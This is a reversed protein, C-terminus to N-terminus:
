KANLQHSFETQLQQLSCRTAKFMHYSNLHFFTRIVTPFISPNFYPM